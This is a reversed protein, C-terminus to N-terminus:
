SIFREYDEIWRLECWAQEGYKKIQALEGEPTLSHSWQIVRDTVIDCLARLRNRVERESFNAYEVEDYRWRGGNEPRYNLSGAIWGSFEQITLKRPCDEVYITTQTPNEDRVPRLFTHRFCLASRMIGPRLLRGGVRIIRLENYGQTYKLTKGKGVFSFGAELLPYAFEENFVNDFELTDM